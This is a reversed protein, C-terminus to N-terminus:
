RIPVFGVHLYRLVPASLFSRFQLVLLLYAAVVGLCLFYCQQLKLLVACDLLLCWQHCVFLVAACAIYYIGHDQEFYDSQSIHSPIPYRFAQGPAKHSSGWKYIQREACWQQDVLGVVSPVVTAQSCVITHLFAPKCTPSSGCHVQALKESSCEKAYRPLSGRGLYM